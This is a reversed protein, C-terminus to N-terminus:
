PPAAPIEDPPKSFMAQLLHGFRVDGSGVPEAGRLEAAEQTWTRVDRLPEQPRAPRAVTEAEIAEKAQRQPGAAGRLLPHGAPHHGHPAPVVRASDRAM